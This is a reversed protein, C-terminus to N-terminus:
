FILLRKEEGMTSKKINLKTVDEPEYGLVKVFEKTDGLEGFTKPDLGSVQYHMPIFISPDIKRAVEAAKAADITYVGGVPVMLVDIEGMEGMLKDSLEHGLDGLHCIRFDEIEIVYITNKGRKEGKKDDHYSDFGLISIGQVEYEGPGEVVRKVDQVAKTNNHDSHQHSVTVIDATVKPFKIGISDAFPDTVVTATSSKIRFSSHGLFQIEM